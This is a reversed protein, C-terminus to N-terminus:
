AERRSIRPSSHVSMSPGSSGIAPQDYWARSAAGAGACGRGARGAAAGPCGPMAAKPKSRSARKPGAWAGAGRPLDALAARVAAPGAAGGGDGARRDTWGRCARSSSRPALSVRRTTRVNCLGPGTSTSPRMVLWTSQILAGPLANRNGAFLCALAIM